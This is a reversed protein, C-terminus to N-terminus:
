KKVEETVVGKKWDPRCVKYNVGAESCARLSINEAQSNILQQTQSLEAMQKLLEDSIKTEKATEAKAPPVAAVPSTAAQMLFMFPILFM